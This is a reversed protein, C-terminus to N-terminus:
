VHSAESELPELMEVAAALFFLGAVWAFPKVVADRTGTERRLIWALGAVATASVSLSGLFPMLGIGGMIM